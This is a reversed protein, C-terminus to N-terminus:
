CVFKVGVDELKPRENIFNDEVIWQIFPEAIVGCNEKLNFKEMIDSKLFEPTRPTIRDVVCSPFSVNEEIWELLEYEKSASLYQKLCDQLMKGNERINDCCLLTIKKNISLMRKKLAAMLFSYIINNEKGQINNKILELNLNLKNKENIYYGSETITMTVLKIDPNSLIGEAKDKDKSWDILKIISNIDKYKEDGSTSITKLIYKGKRLKLNEFNKSDEKRLNIGCIGWNMNNSTNLYEDIYNAQHARHFNGVGLHVIGTKCNERNFSSITLEDRNM